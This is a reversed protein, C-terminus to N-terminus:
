HGARSALSAREAADLARSRGELWSRPGPRGLLRLFRWADFNERPLLLRDLSIPLDGQAPRDFYAGTAPDRLMADMAAALALARKKWRPDKTARYAAWFAEGLAAQDVLLGAPETQGLEHRVVGKAVGERWWLELTKLAFARQSADGAALAARALLANPAAFLRRDVAPVGLALRQSEPLSYYYSGEVADQSRDLEATQAGYFGGEPAKLFRFVYHLTRAADLGPGFALVARAQDQALKATEIRGLGPGDACRFFGGWVPDELKLADSLLREVAAKAWADLGLSRLLAAARFQPFYPEPLAAPALAARAGSLESAADYPRASLRAAAPPPVSPNKRYAEDVARAWPLFLEPTLFTARGLPAGDGTLLVTSPWGGSLYRAALDPREDADVKVAVFRKSIQAAVGRDAYTTEDMVRCARNWSTCLDLLVLKGQARAQALTNATWPKWSVLPAKRRRFNPVPARAAPRLGFFLRPLPGSSFALYAAALGCATMFLGTWVM